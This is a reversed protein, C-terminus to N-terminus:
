PTRENPNEGFFDSTHLLSNATSKDSEKGGPILGSGLFSQVSWSCGRHFISDKWNYPISKYGMLEPM